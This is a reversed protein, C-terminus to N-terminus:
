ATRRPPPPRRPPPRLPPLSAVLAAISPYPGGAGVPADADLEQPRLLGRELAVGVRGACRCMNRPDLHQCRIALYDEAARAARRRFEEVSRASTRTIALLRAFTCGLVHELVFVARPMPPLARVTSEVCLRKMGEELVRLRRPEGRVLAHGLGIPISSESRLVADLAKLRDPTRGRRPGSGRGQHCLQALWGDLGLGPHHRVVATVVTMAVDRDGEMWAAFTYLQELDASAISAADSMASPPYCPDMVPPCLIRRNRQKTTSPTIAM